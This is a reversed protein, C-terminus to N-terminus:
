GRGCQHQYMNQNIVVDGPAVYFMNIRYDAYGVPRRQEYVKVNAEDRSRYEIYFAKESGLRWRQDSPIHLNEMYMKEPAFEIYAGREGVVVRTYGTALLMGGASYFHSDSNGFESIPNGERDAIPILLPQM